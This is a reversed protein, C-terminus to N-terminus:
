ITSTPASAGARKVSLSAANLRPMANAQACAAAGPTHIVIFPVTNSAPATTFSRARPAKTLLPYPSSRAAGKPSARVCNEGGRKGLGMVGDLPVRGAPTYSLQYLM